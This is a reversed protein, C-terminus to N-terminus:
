MLVDMVLAFLFPSLTLGQHLGTLIPFHESDGEVMRVRTKAGDYLDQISRAYAM